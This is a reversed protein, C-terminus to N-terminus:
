ESMWKILGDHIDPDGGFIIILVVVSLWFVADNSM